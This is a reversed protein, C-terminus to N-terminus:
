FVSIECDDLSHLIGRIPIPTIAIPPPATSKVSGGLISVLRGNSGQGTGNTSQLMREFVIVAGTKFSELSSVSAASRWFRLQARILTKAVVSITITLLTKSVAM